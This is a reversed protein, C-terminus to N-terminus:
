RKSENKFGIKHLVLQYIELTNKEKTIFLLGFFVLCFVVSFIAWSLFDQSDLFKNLFYFVVLIFINIYIIKLFDKQFYNEAIKNKYIYYGMYIVTFFESVVVVTAAGNHQFYKIMLFYFFMSLLASIVTARTYIKEMGQPYLILLGFFYAFSVIICLPSLIKITTSAELFQEGGMLLIINDSFIFFYVSCPIAFLMMFGFTKKLYVEYKTKDNLFLFSLRPLMVSGLVSIITIVSRVLSNATLYYGVYKDGAISGIFFKPMELYISVSVTIMFVTLVPRLHRKLNLEKFSFTHHRLKNVIVAFGIINAGFWLVVLLFAYLEYDSEQKILLFILGFVIFKVIVNRVTIFKQNEIGQFYWEASINNLLIMGSMIFILNRYSSFFPINIIVGFLILYSVVTTIFLILLLELVLNCLKKEDERCKSVERIGYTPIGLGSFLIFYFLIVYVYEVKGVYGAGLTRNIYPMMFISALATSFVRLLNLILNGKISIKNVSKAKM